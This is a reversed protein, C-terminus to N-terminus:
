KKAAQKQLAWKVSTTRNRAIAGSAVIQLTRTKQGKEGMYISGELDLSDANTHFVWGANGPPKLFISKKDQSLSAKVRPHLHFRIAYVRGEQGSLIDEGRLDEGSKDMFIRRTHTLRFPQQYGDHTAELLIHGDQEQRNVSVSKPRRLINGDADIHSSSTDDVSLASHAATARQAKLWTADDGTYTGCNVIMRYKGHSLEFSLTGAMATGGIANPLGTDMLMLTKGTLARTFGAEELQAPIRVKDESALLIKDLARADEEYSANFLSLGFDGHRFFKLAGAMKQILSELGGPVGVRSAQLLARVEVMDALVQYLKSPSRQLHMGDELIQANLTNLMVSLLRHPSKEFQPLCVAAYLLGKLATIQEAGQDTTALARRLHRAQQYVSQFFLKQFESDASAGFFDYHNLWATLRAGVVDAKWILIDWKSFNEIWDEVLKRARLRAQNGGLTKLDRLWDFSHLEIEALETLKDSFWPSEGLALTQGVLYFEGRCIASGVASTGDWFDKPYTKLEHVPAGRLTSQYFPMGFMVRKSTLRFRGWFSETSPNPRNSPSVAALM